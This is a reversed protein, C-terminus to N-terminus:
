YFEVLILKGKVQLAVERGAHITRFKLEVSEAGNAASLTTALLEAVAQRAFNATAIVQEQDQTSAMHTARKSAETVTRTIRLLEEATAQKDVRL